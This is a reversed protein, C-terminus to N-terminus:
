CLASEGCLMHLEGSRADWHVKLEGRLARRKRISMPAFVLLSQQALLQRVSRCPSGFHAVDEVDLLLAAGTRTGGGEMVEL